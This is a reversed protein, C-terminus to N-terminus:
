KEIRVNVDKEAHGLSTTASTSATRKHPTLVCQGAFSVRYNWLANERCRSSTEQKRDRDHRFTHPSHITTYQTLTYLQVHSEEEKSVRQTNQLHVDVAHSYTIVEDCKLRQGSGLILQALNPLTPSVGECQMHLFFLQRAKVTWGAHTVREQLHMITYTLNLASPTCCSSSSVALTPFGKLSNRKRFINIRVAHEWFWQKYDGGVLLSFSRWDLELWVDTFYQM